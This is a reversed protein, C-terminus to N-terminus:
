EHGNMPRRNYWKGSDLDSKSTYMELLNQMTVQMMEMEMQLRVMELELIRIRDSKRM